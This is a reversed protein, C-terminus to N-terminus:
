FCILCMNFVRGFITLFFINSPAPRFRAPVSWFSAFLIGLRDRASKSFRKKQIQKTKTQVVVVVVALMVVVGVVVVVVVVRIQDTM